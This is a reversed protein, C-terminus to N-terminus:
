IEERRPSYVSIGFCVLSHGRVVRCDYLSGNCNNGNIFGIRDIPPKMQRRARPDSDSEANKVGPNKFVPVVTLFNDGGNNTFPHICTDLQSSLHQPEVWCPIETKSGVHEPLSKEELRPCYSGKTDKSKSLFGVRDVFQM